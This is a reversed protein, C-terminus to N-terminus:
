VLITSHNAMKKDLPDEGGLSQTQTEQMAPLNKLASGGPFGKKTSVHCLYM